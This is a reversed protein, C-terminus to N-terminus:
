KTHKYQEVHM